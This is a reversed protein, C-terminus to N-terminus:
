VENRRVMVSQGTQASEEVATLIETARLGDVGDVLPEKGQWLCDVFHRISETAFGVQRGQIIPMLTTDSYPQYPYGQPTQDNYLEIMRNNSTDIFVTGKSGQLECKLDFLSPTSASLIWSHELTAVGGNEFQLIITYFDPTDIGMKALTGKRSVAYVEKVEDQYLWRVSDVVHPGLFWLVSSRAAWSIYKTPVYITDNLRFWVFELEGLQGERLSKYATTFPPSWRNHFDVMLTVGAAQAARVIALSEEVTTAMPKEVLLHRKSQLVALAPQAHAFDPTAISVAEIETDLLMEQYSTFIKPIHYKDAVKRAQGANIDCVALLKVHPEESLVRAHLEGWIGVGIIGYGIPKTRLEM